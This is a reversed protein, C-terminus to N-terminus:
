QRKVQRKTRIKLDKDKDQDDRPVKRDQTKVGRSVKCLRSLKYCDGSSSEQPTIKLISNARCDKDKIQAKMFRLIKISVSHRQLNSMLMHYHDSKLQFSAVGIWRYTDLIFLQIRHKSKENGSTRLASLFSPLLSDLYNKKRSQTTLNMEQFLNSECQIAGDNRELQCLNSEYLIECTVLELATQSPSVPFSKRDDYHYKLTESVSCLEQLLAVYEAEASSMATCDAEKTFGNSILGKSLDDYLSQLQKLGYLAKRLRYVKNRHSSSNYQQFASCKQLEPAPDPNDYDSAKQRQPVLGSTDNAVSTEQNNMLHFNRSAKLKLPVKTSSSTIIKGTPVWRLGITKFIKGTPKWKLGSRPTYNRM